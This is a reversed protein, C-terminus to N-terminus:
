ICFNAFSAKKTGPHSQTWKTHLTNAHHIFLTSLRARSAATPLRVTQAVARGFLVNIENQFLSESNICSASLHGNIMAGIKGLM